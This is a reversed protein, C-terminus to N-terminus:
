RTRHDGHRRKACEGGCENQEGDASAAMQRKLGRLLILGGHLLLHLCSACCFWSYGSAPRRREIAVILLSSDSSAWDRCCIWSSLSSSVAVRPWSCVVVSWSSAMRLGVVVLEARLARLEHGRDLLAGAGLDTGVVRQELIERDLLDRADFHALVAVDDADLDGASREEHRAAVVQLVAGLLQEVADAGVQAPVEGVVDDADFAVGVVRGGVRLLEGRVVM